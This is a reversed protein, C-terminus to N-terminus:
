RPRVMYHNIESTVRPKLRSACTGLLVPETGRVSSRDGADRYRPAVARRYGCVGESRDSRTNEYIVVLAPMAAYPHATVSSLCDESCSNALVQHHPRLGVPDVVDETQRAILAEARLDLGLHLLRLDQGLGAALRGAPEAVEAPGRQRAPAARAADDALCFPRLPLALGRKMTVESGRRTTSALRSYSSM